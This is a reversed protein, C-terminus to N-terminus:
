ILAVAALIMVAVAHEKGIQTEEKRRRRRRKGNV